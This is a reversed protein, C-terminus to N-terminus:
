TASLLRLLAFMFAIPKAKRLQSTPDTRNLFNQFVTMILKTSTTTLKSYKDRPKTFDNRRNMVDWAMTADASYCIIGEPSVVLFVDGYEDHALRKDEWSWDKIIFRCWRPWGKGLDLYDQYIYRLIPTAILGIIETELVPTIVYPLTTAKALRLHRCLNVLKYCLLTAVFAVCFSSTSVM